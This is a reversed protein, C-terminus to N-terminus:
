IWANLAVQSMEAEVWSLQMTNSRKRNFILYFTTKFFFLRKIPLSNGPKKHHPESSGRKWYRWDPRNQRETHFKKLCSIDTNVSRSVLVSRTSSEDKMEEEDESLDSSSPSSLPKKTEQSNPLETQQEAAMENKWQNNTLFSSNMLPCNQTTCHFFSTATPVCHNMRCAPLWHMHSCRHLQSHKPRFKYLQLERIMQEHHSAPVWVALDNPVHTQIGNWFLVLLKKCEEDTVCRLCRFQFNLQEHLILYRTSVKWNTEWKLAQYFEVLVMNTWRLIGLLWSLTVQYFLTGM